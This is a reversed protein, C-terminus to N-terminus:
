STVGEVAYDVGACLHKGVHETLIADYSPSAVAVRGHEGCVVPLEKLTARVDSCLCAWMVYYAMTRPRTDPKPKLPPPKPM